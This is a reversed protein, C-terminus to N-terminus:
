DQRPHRLAHALVLGPRGLPNGRGQGRGLEHLYRTVQAGTARLAEELYDFSKAEDPYGSLRVWQCLGQTHRWLNDRSVDALLQEEAPPRPTQIAM